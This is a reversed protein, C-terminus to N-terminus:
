RRGGGPGTPATPGAPSEAIAPSATNTLTRVAAQGARAIRSLWAFGGAFLAGVLALVTQGTASDYPHLFTRNVAILATISGATAVTIIRTATRTSARSRAIRGHAAAHDRATSRWGTSRVDNTHSPRASGSCRTSRRTSSGHSSCSQRPSSADSSSRRSSRHSSCSRAVGM